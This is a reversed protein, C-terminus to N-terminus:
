LDGGPEMSDEDAVDDDFLDMFRVFDCGLNGLCFCCCGAKGGEGLDGGGGECCREPGLEVIVVESLPKCSGAM